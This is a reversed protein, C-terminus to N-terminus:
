LGTKLGRKVGDDDDIKTLGVMVIVSSKTTSTM